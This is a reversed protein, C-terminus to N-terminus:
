YGNFTINTASGLNSGYIIYYNSLSGATTVSDFPVVANSRAVLTQVPNGSSNYSIVTDYYVTTDTKSWTHVSSIVPAGDGPTFSLSNYKKCSASIAVILIGAFLWNINNSKFFNKKM